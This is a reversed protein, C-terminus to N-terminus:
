LISIGQDYNNQLDTQLLKLATVLSDRADEVEKVKTHLDSM